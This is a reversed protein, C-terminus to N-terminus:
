YINSVRIVLALLFVYFPLLVVNGGRSVINRNGKRACYEVSGRGM